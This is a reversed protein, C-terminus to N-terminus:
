SGRGCRLLGKRPTDLHRAGPAARKRHLRASDCCGDEEEGQDGPGGVGVQGQHLLAAYGNRIICSPHDASLHAVAHPSLVHVGTFMYLTTAKGDDYVDVLRRVAGSADVGVPGFRLVAPDPRLALTAVNHQAHHAALLASLDVDQLADANVVAFPGPKLLTAAFLYESWGINIAVIGTAIMGPVAQPLVVKRFAQFRTAGDIMAADELEVPVGAFFSRLTWLMLPLVLATYIPTLAWLNNGLGLSFFIKYMPLVLLIAPIMYTYIFLRAISEFLRNHFRALVYAAPAAVAMALLTTAAAILGSNFMAVHFSTADFFQIFNEVTWREPVLTPPYRMLESEPKFASLLVWVFPLLILLAVGYVLLYRGARQFLTVSM